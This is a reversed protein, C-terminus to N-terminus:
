HVFSQCPLMFSHFVAPDRSYKDLRSIPLLYCTLMAALALTCSYHSNRFAQLYKNFRPTSNNYVCTENLMIRTWYRLKSPRMWQIRNAALRVSLFRVPPLNCKNSGRHLYVICCCLITSLDTWILSRWVSIYDLDCAINSVWFVFGCRCSLFGKTQIYFWTLGYYIACWRLAQAPSFVVSDRTTANPIALASAATTM